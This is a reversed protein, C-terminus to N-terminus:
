GDKDNVYGTGESLKVFSFRAGSQVAAHANYCGQYSAADFGVDAQAIGPAILMAIALSAGGLTKRLQRAHNPFVIYRRNFNMGTQCQEPNNGYALQVWSIGSEHREVRAEKERITVPRIIGIMM